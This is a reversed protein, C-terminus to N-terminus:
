SAEAQAYGACEDLLWRRVAQVAKRRGARSNVALYYGGFLIETPALEVLAGSKCEPECLHKDMLVAGLGAVASQIALVANLPHPLHLNPVPDLGAIAFWEPWLRFTAEELLNSAALRELDLQGDSVPAFGPAAYARVACAFLRDYGHRDDTRLYRLGMDFDHAEIDMVQTSITLQLDIEPHLSRLRGLRPVLWKQAVANETTLTVTGEPVAVLTETAQHIQDFAPTIEALYERGQETLIVGTNNGRFLHVNLRAELGRIHRSIASHTVNLEQAARTFSGLRGAAEFARLANLPPLHRSMGSQSKKSCVIDLLLM